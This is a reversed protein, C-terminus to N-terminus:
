ISRKSIISQGLDLAFGNDKNWRGERRLSENSPKWSVRCARVSSVMKLKENAKVESVVLVLDPNSIKPLFDDLPFINYKHAYRSWHQWHWALGSLDRRWRRSRPDGKPVQHRAPDNQLHSGLDDASQAWFVLFNAQIRRQTNPAPREPFGWTKDGKQLGVASEQLSHHWWWVIKTIWTKQCHRM